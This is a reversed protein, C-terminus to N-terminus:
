ITDDNFTGDETNAVGMNKSKQLDFLSLQVKKEINLRTLAIDCYEESIDIGLYRRQNKAAIVCTTGSGAMPDLVFDNPMSFCQIIDQALKDPYTAPHKLKLRNGETNSTSYRWVTGRCKMSNVEKPVIEKFGGNTLRDTGSYVKGAHKSPIMLSRKEFTKPRKGKFFLLIYEHDVRFRQTWWAGPNGDRYYICQEFLRWGANDCWDVTLRATTLSKAFDKTGDGIVVACVGGEKSVRYLSKGLASYDFNWGKHYTRIGDYPPSFLILDVEADKIYPLVELCDGTIICNTLHNNIADNISLDAMTLKNPSSM